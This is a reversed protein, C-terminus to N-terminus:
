EGIVSSYRSKRRHEQIFVENKGMVQSLPSALCWHIECECHVCVVARRLKPFALTGLQLLLHCENM